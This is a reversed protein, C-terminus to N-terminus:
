GAYSMIKATFTFDLTNGSTNTVRMILNTAVVLFEIEISNPQTDETFTCERTWILQPKNAHESSNNVELTGVEDQNPSIGSSTPFKGKYDIFAADIDKSLGLTIDTSGGFVIEPVEVGISLNNIEDVIMNLQLGKADFTDDQTRYPYNINRFKDM